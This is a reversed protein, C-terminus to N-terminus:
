SHSAHCNHCARLNLVHAVSLLIGGAATFLLEEFLQSTALGIGLGVFGILGIILIGRRRHMQYGSYLAYIGVPFVILALIVHM